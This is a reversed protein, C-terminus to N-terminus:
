SGAQRGHQLHTVVLAAMEKFARESRQLATRSPLWRQNWHERSAREPVPVPVVDLETARFEFAARPMHLSSTVLLIKGIGMQRALAASFRANERTSRSRQEMVLASGPVGLHEIAISMRRAETDEGEGGGSLIVVPARGALWARAGAAVRSSRLDDPDVDERLLWRYGGGGGLVVIADATPLTAEDRPPHQRELAGRLADSALPMSWIFTWGCAFVVGAAGIRWFGLLTIMGALALVWLTLIAPNTLSAALDLLRSM